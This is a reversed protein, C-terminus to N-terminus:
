LKVEETTIPSNKIIYPLKNSHIEEDDLLRHQILYGEKCSFSFWDYAFGPMHILVDKFKGNDIYTNKINNLLKPFKTPPLLDPINSYYPMCWVFVPMTLLISVTNDETSYDKNSKKNCAENICKISLEEINNTKLMHDAALDIYAKGKRLLKVSNGNEDKGPEYIGYCEPCFGLHDAVMSRERYDLAEDASFLTEAQWQKFFRAVTSTGSFVDCFSTANPAKEDIVEKINELLLTKCGIFRM